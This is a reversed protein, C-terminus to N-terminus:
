SAKGNVRQLLEIRLAPFSATIAKLVSDPQVAFGDISRAAWDLTARQCAAVDVGGGAQAMNPM